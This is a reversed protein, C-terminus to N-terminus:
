HDMNNLKEQYEQGMQTNINPHHNILKGRGNIGVLKGQNDLISGGSSGEKTENTFALQYGDELPKNVKYGTGSTLMFDGPCDM